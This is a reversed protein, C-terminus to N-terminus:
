QCSIPAVKCDAAGIRCKLAERFGSFDYEELRISIACLKRM